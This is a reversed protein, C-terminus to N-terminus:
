IMINKHVRHWHILILAPINMLIGYLLPTVALDPQQLQVVAVFIATGANQIGVEISFTKMLINDGGIAKAVIAGLLGGCLCLALVAISAISFLQKFVSLNALLTVFVTFFLTWLASKGSVNIFNKFWKTSIYARMVMGIATPLITVVVLQLIAIKIPMVLHADTLVLPLMLPLSFPIILSSLATMSISLATDGGNLYTITNSSAGGPALALLWLGVAIPEPLGLYHIFGYAIIPLGILQTILGATIKLPFSSVRKFDDLKLTLGVCYMMWALALPLIITLMAQSM